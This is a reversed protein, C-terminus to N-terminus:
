QFLREWTVVAKTDVVGLLQPTFREERAFASVKSM